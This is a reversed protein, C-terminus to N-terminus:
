KKLELLAATLAKHRVTAGRLETRAARARQRSIAALTPKGARKLDQATADLADALQRREELSGEKRLRESVLLVLAKKVAPTM